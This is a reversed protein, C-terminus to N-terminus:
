SYESPWSVRSHYYTRRSGPASSSAVRDEVAGGNFLRDSINLCDM